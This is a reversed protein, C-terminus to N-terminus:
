CRNNMVCNRLQTAFEWNNNQDYTVEWTFVGSFTPYDRIPPYYDGCLSHDSYGGRLCGIIQKIVSNSKAPGGDSGGTSDPAPYGLLVQDDRLVAKYPAFGTPQGDSTKSPWAELMDVAMAVSFDTNKPDMNSYLKDNIGNMGGTNYVQVGSWALCPYTKLVLNSYSGYINVWGGQTQAPAVNEAQPVLSILLKPNRAYLLHIIKALVDVDSPSGDNTFGVELDFDVGDLGYEKVLEEISSVFVSTFNSDTSIQHFNVTAGRTNTLAGGLSILVRIGEAQLQKVYAPKIYSFDQRVLLGKHTANFTAFALIIHTYGATALDKPKVHTPKYAPLYGVIRGAPASQSVTAYFLVLVLAVTLPRM